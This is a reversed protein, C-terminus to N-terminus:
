WGGNRSASDLAEIYRLPVTTFAFLVAFAISPLILAVVSTKRRWEVYDDRRRLVRFWTGTFLVALAGESIAIAGLIDM